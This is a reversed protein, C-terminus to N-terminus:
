FYIKAQERLEENYKVAEREYNSIDKEYINHRGTPLVVNRV